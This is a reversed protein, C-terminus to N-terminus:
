SSRRPGPAATSGTRNCNGRRKAECQYRLTAEGMRGDKSVSRIRIRYATGAQLRNVVLRHETVADPKTNRIWAASGVPAYEVTADAPVSAKWSVVVPNWPPEAPGPRFGVLAKYVATADTSLTPAVLELPGPD